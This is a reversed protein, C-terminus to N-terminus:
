DATEPLRDPEDDSFLKAPNRKITDAFERISASTEEINEVIRELDPSRSEILRSVGETMAALSSISSNVNSWATRFDMKNLQNMVKTASDSFSELLSVTSPIYFHEPKWSIEMPPPANDHINCEIHSLGTIGSASVTVRLGRAVLDELLRDIGLDDRIKLAKPDIAMLVYIRLKGFSEIRYKSGVFSIERVEGVKVGRFNVPSGVSLGGVPKDYYTEAYIRDDAGVGGFYILVGVVALIGTFVAFGIKAYNARNDSDM